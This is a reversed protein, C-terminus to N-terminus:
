RLTFNMSVVIVMPVPTGRYRGPQWTTAKIAKLAQEDLGFKSDLSRDIRMDGVTGDLNVVFEVSVVGQIKARMAEPTYQPKIDSVAAGVNARMADPTYPSRADRRQVPLEMGAGERFKYAGAGFQGARIPAPPDLTFALEFVVLCAVPKDNIKCPVFPTHRVTDIANDDLGLTSDLSRTVRVDTVAGTDGVVAQLEVIGQIGAREAEPTYFPKVERLRYPSAVGNGPRYAGAGFQGAPVVQGAPSTAPVTTQPHRFRIPTKDTLRLSLEGDDLKAITKWQSMLYMVHTPDWGNVQLFVAARNGPLQQSIDISSASQQVTFTGRIPALGVDFLTALQDVFAPLPEWTGNFDTPTEATAVPEQIEATPFPAASAAYRATVVRPEYNNWTTTDIVMADGDRRVRRVRTTYEQGASTETTAIVLVGGEWHAQDRFSYNAVARGGAFTGGGGTNTARGNFTFRLTSTGTAPQVQALSGRGSGLSYTANPVIDMTLADATQTAAFEAGFPAASEAARYELPRADGDLRWHGSFDPRVPVDATSASADNSPGSSRETETAAAPASSAPPAIAMFTQLDPLHPPAIETLVQMPTLAAAGVIGSAVIIAAAVAVSLRTRPHRAQRPDLIARLRDAMQARRAMSLAVDMHATDRLDATCMALLHEAYASAKQGLQLVVDDCARERELRARRVLWLVLPHYWYVASVARAVTNLADDHRRVHALEHVLVADLRDDTWQAATVPLLLKPSVAGFTAPMGHVAAFRTAVARSVGLRGRARDAASLIRADTCARATTWLRRRARRTTVARIVLVIAGTALLATLWPVSVPPAPRTQMASATDPASAGAAASSSEARSFFRLLPAAVSEARSVTAPSQVPLEIAPLLADAIPVIVTGALTASIVIHRSAASARRMALVTLAGAVLVL